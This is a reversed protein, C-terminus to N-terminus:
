NFELGETRSRKLEFFHPYKALLVAGDFISGADEGRPIRTLVPGFFATDGLAVVPTGVEDGVRDMAGQHYARLQDDVETTSAVDLLSAPLGVAALSEAILAEYAGYGEKGGQEGNHIRTGLDTYLADVKDSHNAKVAAFVRAPGLNAEMKRRYDEPLYDRGENLVSLSMPIWEVEIDRVKEVEKIWRSTVWCYPCSVDFWFSVKESMTSEECNIITHNSLLWVM